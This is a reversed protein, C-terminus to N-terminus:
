TTGILAELEKIATTRGNQRAMIAAMREAAVQYDPKTLLEQIAHGIEEVGADASLVIGAGCAAVRAANDHQDRGMPLCLLPVGYALAAMVTGLGAHTVVLACDPLLATHSLYCHIAVNPAPAITNPAITAGVTLIAQVPLAALAATVRRLVEEQRQYTTSFAVLVRPREDGSRWPSDQAVAPPDDRIAGVYRVNAPLDPMAVDFEQPCAVLVVKMPDMLAM